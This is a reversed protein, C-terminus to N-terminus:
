HDIFFPWQNPDTIQNGEIIQCKILHLISLGFTKGQFSHLFFVLSSGTFQPKVLFITVLVLPIM